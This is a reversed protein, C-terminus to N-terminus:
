NMMTNFIVDTIGKFNENYHHDGGLTFVKINKLKYADRTRTGEEDGFICVPHLSNLRSTETLVDYKESKGGLSLMDSIHIEFDATKSPSFM